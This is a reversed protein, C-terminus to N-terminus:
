FPIDDDSTPQLAGQAPEVPPAPAAPPAAPPYSPAPAPPGNPPYPSPAGTMPPPVSAQPPGVPAPPPGAPPAQAMPQPAMPQPAPVPSLPQMPAPEPTADLTMGVYEGYSKPYVERLLKDEEEPTVPKVLDDLNYLNELIPWWQQDIPHRDGSVHVSYKINWPDPGIKECTVVINFGWQWHSIPGQHQELALIQDSIQKGARIVTPFLQGDRFHRQPDSLVISQFYCRSQSMLERGMDYNPRPGPEQGRPEGLEKSRLFHDIKIQNAPCDEGSIVACDWVRQREKVEGTIQDMVDVSGFHLESRSWFKAGPAQSWSPLIRFAIETKHGMAKPKPFDFFDINQGGGSYDREMEAKAEAASSPPPANTLEFGPPAAVPLQPQPAPAPVNPTQQYQTPPAQQQQNPAHGYGPAYGPNNPDYTV